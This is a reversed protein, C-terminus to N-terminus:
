LWKNWQSSHYNGHVWTSGNHWSKNHMVFMQGDGDKRFRLHGDSADIEWEGLKIKKSPFVVWDDTDLHLNGNRDSIKSGGHVFNIGNPANIIGNVHLDGNNTFKGLETVKNKLDSKGFRIGANTDAGGGQQNIIWSEGESGSRNWQFHLGQNSINSNSRVHQSNVTQNGLVNVNGDEVVMTGINNGSYMKIKGGDSGFGLHVTKDGGAVSNRIIRMEASNDKTALDLGTQGAPREGRIVGGTWIDGTWIQKASLGNNDMRVWGDTGNDGGVKFTAGGLQLTNGSVKLGGDGTVEFPKNSGTQVIANQQFIQQATFTNAAATKAVDSTKAYPALDSTKAYNTLDSTKAYGDINGSVNLNGIVTAAGGVHLDGDTYLNKAALGYNYSTNNERMRVWGDDVDGVQFTAGGVKLSKGSVKLGGDGEVEFPKNSGTKVIANQQFIQQATFTNAAATSAYSGKPQYANAVDTTKAYSTLDTTKAYGDISVATINTVNLNGVTANPINVKGQLNSSSNAALIIGGDFTQQATFTNAAATSAYSGKTQYTNALNSTKAYSALDSALAYSGKTQYADALNSTKAYSALDSALAYSGKTQFVDTLESTKAYGDISAAKLNGSVNLNGVTANPINVKGQLNSTSNAGLIIGGNFTQQANFTNATSLKAYSALDSALAYSGKTQYVNALDTTTAYSALDSKVAYNALATTTAYSALDKALAYDGKPQFNALSSKAYSDLDKALAYEGKPQYDGKPQYNALATTTAYSDLDKALAYDGKPQFNALDTSKAYSVLDKTVAYDGKPQYAELESPSVYRGAPQYKTLDSALAYSALDSKSAVNSPVVPIESRLAYGALDTKTVVNTPVVPIDTKKAYYSLATNVNKLATNINSALDTRFAYNGRTQYTLPLSNRLNDFETKSPYSM